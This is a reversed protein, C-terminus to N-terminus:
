ADRTLYYERMSSSKFHKQIMKKVYQVDFPKCSFINLYVSKSKNAFHGTISSTSIFQCCSIGATDNALTESTEELDVFHFDGLKHMDLQKILEDVFVRIRDTSKIAVEDCNKADIVLEYGWPM